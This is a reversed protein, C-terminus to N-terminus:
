VGDLRAYCLLYDFLVHRHNPTQPEDMTMGFSPIRSTRGKPIGIM